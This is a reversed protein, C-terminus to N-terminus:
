FMLSSSAASRGRARWDSFTMRRNLTFNWVLAVAIALSRALALAFTVKTPPVVAGALATHGFIWQFLGYLTLDVIMGSGGVACFQILRSFTGFRHDALRKLHRLEDIEFRWPDSAVSDRGGALPVDIWRGGVKALLEFAFTDGVPRFSRGADNFTARTLAILGSRPDSTGCLKTM